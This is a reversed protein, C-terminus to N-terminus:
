KLNEYFPVFLFIAISVFLFFQILEYGGGIFYIKYLSNQTLIGFIAVIILPFVIPVLLHRKKQTRSPMKTFLMTNTTSEVVIILPVVFIVLYIVTQISYYNRITYKSVAIMALFFVSVIEIEKQKYYSSAFILALLLALAAMMPLTYSRLVMLFAYYLAFLVTFIM